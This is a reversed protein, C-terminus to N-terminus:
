ISTLWPQETAGALSVPKFRFLKAIGLAQNPKSGLPRPMRCTRSRGARMARL